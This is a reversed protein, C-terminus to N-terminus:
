RSYRVESNSQTIDNNDWITYGRKGGPHLTNWYISGSM